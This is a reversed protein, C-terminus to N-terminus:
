NTYEILPQNHTVHAGEAVHIAAIKGTRTARISNKMKMAELVCLQQGFKVEEGVKVSIEIIVGPIPAAVVKNTTVPTNEVQPLGTIPEGTHAAIEDTKALITPPCEEEPWVEFNEGEVMVMIPRAHVDGVEVDFNKDQVTVRIKM